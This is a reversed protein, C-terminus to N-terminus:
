TPEMAGADRRVRLPQRCRQMVIGRLREVEAAPVITMGDLRALINEAPELVRRVVKQSLMQRELRDSAFITGELRRLAVAARLAERVEALTPRSIPPGFTPVGPGAYDDDLQTWGRAILRDAIAPADYALPLTPPLSDIIHRLDAALRDRESM